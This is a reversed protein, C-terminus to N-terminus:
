DEASEWIDLYLRAHKRWFDWRWHVTEQWSRIDHKELGYRKAKGITCDMKRNWKRMYRIM